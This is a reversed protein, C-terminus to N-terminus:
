STLRETSIPAKGNGGTETWGNMVSQPFLLDVFRQATPQPEHNALGPRENAEIIVYSPRDVAEVLLDLGVVPIDLAVSAVRAAEELSPHLRPTVDHITGGTHLNATKRVRLREHAPLISDLTYGERRICRETEDDVPISSEGRTAATRRRSQKEILQAISLTGTGVVEAPRRVAAAVVEHDIVIVRLDDGEVYEELLVKPDHIRAREVADALETPEDIDVAIGRGQEGCAPKVVLRGKARLFAENADPHGALCQAPVELGARALIRTTVQKDACASMAVASTLESLSERCRVKRGGLRLNFYGNAADEVEVVIGRRRAEDVIIQAYVNLEGGEVPGVYLPENIPNKKKLCFLHLRKFGMKRYLPVAQSNGHMVSLDLFERGLRQFRSALADVLMEGVAAHSTRPDVALNWLSTGRSSGGVALPHDIGTVVGAVEGMRRDVAVLHVLGAEHNSEEYFSEDVTVMRRSDFIRNVAAVDQSRLPRTELTQNPPEPKYTTLELRYTDSPDLFVEQPAAAIVVHPDHVYFAIDRRGPEEARLADCLAVPNPYTHGFLVRGWGCDVAVGAGEKGLLPESPQVGPM